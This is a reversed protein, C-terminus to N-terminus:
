PQPKMPWPLVMTYPPCAKELESESVGERHLCFELRTRMTVPFSNSPGCPIGLCSAWYQSPMEFSFGYAGDDSTVSQAEKRSIYWIDTGMFDDPDDVEISQPSQSLDLAAEIIGKLASGIAFMCGTGGSGVCTKVAGFVAGGIAFAAGIESAQKAPTITTTWDREMLTVTMILGLDRDIEDNIKSLGGPFVTLGYKKLDKLAQETIPPRHGSPDDDPETNDVNQQKVDVREGCCWSSSWHIPMGQLQGNVFSFYLYPEEGFDFPDNGEGPFTIINYPYKDSKRTFKYGSYAYPGTNNLVTMKMWRLRYKYPCGTPPKVANDGPIPQDGWNLDCNDEVTDEWYDGDADPCGDTFVAGQHHINPCKDLSDPVGDNDTDVFSQAKPVFTSCSKNSLESEIREPPQGVLSFPATTYASVQYCYQEDKSQPAQLTDVYSNVNAGVKTYEQLPVGALTYPSARYIIFGQENSSNDQWSLQIRYTESGSIDPDPFTSINKTALASPAAPTEGGAPQGALMPNALSLRANIQELDLSMSPAATLSLTQADYRQLKTAEPLDHYNVLVREFFALSEPNEDLIAAIQHDVATKNPVDEFYRELYYMITPLIVAAVEDRTREPELRGEEALYYLPLDERADQPTPREGGALVVVGRGRSNNEKNAEVIDNGPDIIATLHHEGSPLPLLDIVLEQAQGPDLGEIVGEGLFREDAAFIAVLTGGVPVRSSNEVVVFAALPEGEIFQEELAFEVLVLDVLGEPPSGLTGPGRPGEPPQEFIDWFVSGEYVGPPIDLYSVVNFNKVYGPRHAEASISIAGQPDIVTVHYYPFRREHLEWELVFGGNRDTNTQALLEKPGSEPWEDEDGFLQVTVGAIPHQRNPPEGEYVQGTFVYVQATAFGGIVILVLMILLGRCALNVKFLNTIM